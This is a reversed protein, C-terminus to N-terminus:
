IVGNETVVADLRQDHAEVPFAAEQGAFALGICPPIATRSGAGARVVALTRDYFGGGYGLRYRNRDFGLLPACIVDPILEPARAGPQLIGYPGRDLPDDPHYRRFILPANQGTVVPLALGHGAATLALALRGTDLETGIPAYLAVRSAPALTVCEFFRRTVAGAADTREAESLRDRRQKLGARVTAKLGRAKSTQSSM